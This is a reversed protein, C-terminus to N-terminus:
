NLTREKKAQAARAELRAADVTTAQPHPAVRQRGSLHLTFISLAWHPLNGVQGGRHKRSHRREKTRAACQSFM